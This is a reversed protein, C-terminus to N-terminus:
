KNRPYRTNIYEGIKEGFIALIHSRNLLATQPSMREYAAHAVAIAKKFAELDKPDHLTQLLMPPIIGARMEDQAAKHVVVYGIAQLCEHNTM